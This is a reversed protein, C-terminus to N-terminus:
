YSEFPIANQLRSRALSSERETKRCQSQCQGEERPNENAARSKMRPRNGSQCIRICEFATRERICFHFQYQLFIKMAFEIIPWHNLPIKIHQCKSREVIM